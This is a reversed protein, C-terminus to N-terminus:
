EDLGLMQKFDKESLIPIGLQEARTLKSGPESGALVYDTKKSVSSTVKGNHARILDSAEERSYHELTGTLVFTKGNLLASQPATTLRRTNVGQEKLSEILKLNEESAFFNLIEEAMKGGVEQIDTLTQEDARMVEDLNSFHKALLLATTKGILPIGLAFILNSLDNEKSHEIADLLNQVSKEGLNDLHILEERRDKLRYIDAITDVYSENMLKEVLSDGLGDINMANRSVFHQVKRLLQAPCFKNVCRTAAEGELRVVPHGCAPCGAPMHFVIEHGTRKAKVPRVVEPIVDGAKRIIVRDGIRIDKIAINDENHLTARSVVSGAVPTSDLEAIPTLVGTRGVQIAINNLTTEAEEASFKYAIAWRPNKSTQGLEARDKLRDIKLVAGDIEYPLTEREEGIAHVAAIAKEITDAIRYESVKFGIDKLYDLSESHSAFTKGEIRELNFVFINLPRQATIRSDLQRLSGAAANRPNAFKSLNEAERQRNLRRFDEKYIIVEGRVVLSVPDRLKLPINKITRINETVNEGIVGDGRTAGQVLIGNEYTLVVTLGDFKRECVYRYTKLVKAIRQDFERLEAESFVDALSLQQTEHHVKEFSDLVVGGVRKTPSDPYAYAPYEASVGGASVNTM